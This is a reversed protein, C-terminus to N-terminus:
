LAYSDAPSKVLDQEVLQEVIKDGLGEIDMARRAAFHRLAEQRQARCTFGGTCRAAAEGEARVVQSGCVPCKAPLEIQPADDAVHKVVRVVVPIVDGARRVVVTDGVRVDKRRVEDINHSTVNTVTVGGVFVPESRAVPTSAGTRGVQFEIKAVTTTAEE